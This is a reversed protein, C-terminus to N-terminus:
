HHPANDRGPVRCRGHRERIEDSDIGDGPLHTMADRVIRHLVRLEAVAAHLVALGKSARPPVTNEDADGATSAVLAQAYRDAADEIQRLAAEREMFGWLIRQSRRCEREFQDVLPALDTRVSRTQRDQRHLMERLGDIMQQAQALDRRLRDIERYAEDAHVPDDQRATITM